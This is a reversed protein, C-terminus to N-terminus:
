RLIAEDILKTLESLLSDRNGRSMLVVRTGEMKTAHEVEDYHSGYKVSAVTTKRGALVESLARRFFPSTMEMPGIEDVLVLSADGRAANQLSTAGISELESINVTYSGIKPGPGAVKSALWGERGSMLSRIKFGTRENGSRAEDTLIGSVMVGREACHEYLRRLLTTKGVGPPGTM